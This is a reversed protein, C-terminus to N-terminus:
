FQNRDVIIADFITMKEPSSRNKAISPPAALPASLNGIRNGHTSFIALIPWFIRALLNKGM